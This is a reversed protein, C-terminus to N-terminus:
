PKFTLGFESEATHLIAEALANVEDDSGEPFRISAIRAADNVMDQIFAFLGASEVTLIRDAHGVDIVDCDFRPFPNKKGGPACLTVSWDPTNGKAFQEMAIIVDGLRMMGYADVPFSKKHEEIFDAACSYGSRMDREAMDQLEKETLNEM